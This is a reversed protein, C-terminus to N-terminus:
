LVITSKWLSAQAKEQPISACKMRVHIKSACDMSQSTAIKKTYGVVVDLLMHACM